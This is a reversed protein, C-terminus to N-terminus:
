NLKFLLLNNKSLNDFRYNIILFYFTFFVDDIMKVKSKLLFGIFNLYKSRAKSKKFRAAFACFTPMPVAVGLAEAFSSTVEVLLPKKGGRIVKACRLPM